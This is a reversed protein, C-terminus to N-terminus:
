KNEIIVVNNRYHWKIACEINDCQTNIKGITFPIYNSGEHLNDINGDKDFIDWRIITENTFNVIKRVIYQEWSFISTTSQVNIKWTNENVKTHIVVFDPVKMKALKSTTNTNTTTTASTSTM